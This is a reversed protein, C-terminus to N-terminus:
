KVKSLRTRCTICEILELESESLLIELKKVKNEDEVKEILRKYLRGRPRKAVLTRETEQTINLM